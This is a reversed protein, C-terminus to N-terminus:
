VFLKVLFEIFILSLPESLQVPFQYSNNCGPVIKQSNAVM